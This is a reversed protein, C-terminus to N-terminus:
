VLSRVILVLASAGCVVLVLPRITTARMRRHVVAALAVGVLLAPLMVAAVAGQEASLHGTVALGCLSLSTGILFFVALTSRIQRAPRHQYLVAMPPGGIASTTGAVGSVLGGVSLSRRNLPVVIARATVVVALLVVVGVAVGLQQVSVVSVVWVGVATGVLRGPLSWGIGAWDIEAHDRALTAVPLALALLLMSGPMLEPAVLTVVPAAVLGLGLGVVSQVLSGLVLAVAIVVLSGAAVDIM